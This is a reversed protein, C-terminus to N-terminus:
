LFNDVMKERFPQQGVRHKNQVSMRLKNRLGYITEDAYSNSENQTNATNYSVNKNFDGQSKRMLASKGRQKGIDGGRVYTAQEENRAMQGRIQVLRNIHGVSKFIVPVNEGGM